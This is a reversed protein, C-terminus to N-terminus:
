KDGKKDNKPRNRERDGKNSTIHEIQKAIIKDRDAKFEANRKELEEVQQKLDEVKKARMELHRDFGKNLMAVIKAKNEETPNEKYIKITDMFEKRQAMEEETMKRPQPRETKGQEFRDRKDMREKRDGKDGNLGKPPPPAMDCKEMMPPPPPPMDSATKVEEAFANSILFAGAAMLIVKKM